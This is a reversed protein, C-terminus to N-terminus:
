QKKAEAKKATVTITFTYSYHPDGGYEAYKNDDEGEPWYWELSYKVSKRADLIGDQYLKEPTVWDKENGAAYKDEAARKLRYVMPIKIPLTDTAKFSVDYNSPHDNRNDVTFQYSGKMGPAIRKKDGFINVNVAREGGYSVRTDFVGFDFKEPEPTPGPSTGPKKPDSEEPPPPVPGEPPPPGEGGAPVIGLVIGEIGTIRGESDRTLILTFELLDIDVAVQFVFTGDPLRILQANRVEITRMIEINCQVLVNGAEDLVSITHTGPEVDMFKFYGEGDTRTYRPESMFEIVGDVYPTHDTYVVRGRIDIRQLIPVPVEESPFIINRIREIIGVRPRNMHVDPMPSDLVFVVEGPGVIDRIVGYTPVSIYTIVM